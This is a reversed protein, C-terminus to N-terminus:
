REYHEAFIEELTPRHTELSRVKRGGAVLARLLADTAGGHAPDIAFEWRGGDRGLLRVGDVAPPPSGDGEVEARVRLAAKDLLEGVGGAAAVEGARVIAVRDAIGQVESLVHSSFFVTAGGAQAERALALVEAQVLPDLGSTPEDLLLLEPAHMFAAVIGLKQKNGKSLNKIKAELRLGLREAITDARRATEPLDGRLRRFFKLAADVRINEDLRLEGPLYGTRSRVAVPDQRPDIGLVSLEGSDRRILDLMCRVATTKGAGNPGLFGFVEGRRVELDIGRLARFPGYSKSLKRAHIAAASPATPMSPKPAGEGGSRPATRAGGMQPQVASDISGAATAGTSVPDPM